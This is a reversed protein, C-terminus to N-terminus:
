NLKFDISKIEFKRKGNIKSAKIRVSSDKIRKGDLRVQGSFENDIYNEDRLKITKDGFENEFWIRAVKTKPRVDARKIIFKEGDIFVEKGKLEYLKLRGAKNRKYKSILDGKFKVTYFPEGPGSNDFCAPSLQVLHIDSFLQGIYDNPDDYVHNSNTFVIKDDFIAPVSQNNLASTLQIEDGTLLNHMYIDSNENGNRYDEWVILNGYIEPNVETVNNTIQTEKDTELDYMYIHRLDEWVIKDRYIKPSLKYYGGNNTIQKETGSRLDHMFIETYGSRSDVWVILDKFISPFVEGTLENTIQTEIGTNIDYMYIDWNGNRRDQWVIRNGYIAPANSWTNTIQTEIGTSIQYMFIEWNSNRFDEWVVYDGYIVPNFQGASDNTIQTIVGTKINRMYIDLIYNERNQWVVYDGYIAPQFQLASNDIWEIGSEGSCIKIDDAPNLKNINGYKEAHAMGSVLITLLLVVMILMLKKM